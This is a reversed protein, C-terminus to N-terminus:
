RDDRADLIAVFEAPTVIRVNRIRDIERVGRDGSVLYDAEGYLAHAFLYDDKRDRGVIPLDGEITPIHRAVDALIEILREVQPQTIRDSLYPKNESKDRVEAIIGDTLLLTYESAIAMQVLASPPAQSDPALLYSLYVNADLLAFM